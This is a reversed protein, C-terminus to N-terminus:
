HGGYYHSGKGHSNYGGARHSGTRGRAEADFSAILITVFIAALATSAIKFMNQNGDLGIITPRLGVM